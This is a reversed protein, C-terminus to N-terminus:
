SKREHEQLLEICKQTELLKAWDLATNGSKDQIDTKAESELLTQTNKWHGQQVCVMLPTQGQHDTANKDMGAQLLVQLNQHAFPSPSAAAMHLATWGNPLTKNTDADAELLHLVVQHAASFPSGAAMLLPPLQLRGSKDQDAGARLLLQVIKPYALMAAVQMVNAGTTTCIDHLQKPSKLLQQKVSQSSGSWVAVC